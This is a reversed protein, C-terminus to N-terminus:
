RGTLSRARRLEHVHWIAVAFVIAAFGQHLVGLSIPVAYLVTYIGLVMQAILGSALLAASRSVREEDAVSMMRWAHWIGLAVILYATIRHNFQVMAINEGLNVWWPEMQLILSPILQGDMLPWTNYARGAKLGAVFGGIVVQSFVLAALAVAWGYHARTLTSLRPERRKPYLDLILWVLVALIIFAGSLHLALKYQSVDIRDVLGSRVMYWGITGQLGVLIGVGLVKLSMRNSLRGTAWMVVLPLALVLGLFRGLFRHAWEWWFIVKFAELSMGKNVAKYQLTTRYKELATQWDAATLPPLTGMIPQWETISLGSDTLRTAGGVVIMCLVLFAAFILWGQVLRDGIHDRVGSM